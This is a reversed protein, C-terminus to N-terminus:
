RLRLSPLTTCRATPPVRADALLEGFGVDGEVVARSQPSFRARAVVGRRHLVLEFDERLIYLSLATTCCEVNPFRGSRGPGPCPM